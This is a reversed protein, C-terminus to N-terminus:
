FKAGLGVRGTNLQIITDKALPLQVYEYEARLFINQMLLYEFGIGANFGFTLLTEQNESRNDQTTVSDITRVGNFNDYRTLTLAPPGNFISWALHLVLLRM